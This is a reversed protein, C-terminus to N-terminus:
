TVIGLQPLGFYTFFIILLLPLNRIIDIIFVVIASVYKIKTYRILGLILGVVFSVAISILSVYITVWLGQLLFRIDVWSYARIFTEM